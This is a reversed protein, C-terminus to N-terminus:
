VKREMRDSWRYEEVIGMGSECFDLDAYRWDLGVLKSPDKLTLTSDDLAQCYLADREGEFPESLSLGGDTAKVFIVTHDQCPHFHFSRPHRSCADFALPIEDDVPLSAVEVSRDSGLEWIKVDKGFRRIPVSYSLKTTLQALLFRGCPSSQLSQILCGGASQKVLKVELSSTDVCLLETTLFYKLKAEDYENKLLDIFRFPMSQYVPITKLSVFHVSYSSM